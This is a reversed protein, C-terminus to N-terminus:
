PLADVDALLVFDQYAEITLSAILIEDSNDLPLGSVRQRNDQKGTRSRNWLDRGAVIHHAEYEIRRRDGRAERGRAARDKKMRDHRVRKTAGRGEPERKGM